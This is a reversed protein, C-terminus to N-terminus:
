VNKKSKRYSWLSILIAVLLSGMGILFTIMFGYHLYFAIGIAPAFVSRLGTLWLHVAQYDGADEDACYYASGINWLLPMTSAFVSHFLVYGMLMFYLTIGFWEVYGPFVDTLVLFGIYAFMSGFTILSFKRPDISGLLRGALPLLIIAGVNYANRYFAVSSYNLQLAEQFYIFIVSVTSMFAFGYFMFSVEFHLFPKNKWLITFMRKVSNGVSTFFRQAPEPPHPLRYPIRSFIFVSSIGLLAVFPFVYVFAYNDYDLLLGYAFTVVLMVIKNLSSSISYLRSFNKHRYSNKLFLNITPNVVPAALFYLFFILLFVYHYISNGDYAEPTRPFFILAMLPLRTLLGVTRLMKRKQVTRRLFENVFILFVFVVMSFQFLFSLQYPSGKISKIFVFENLALVGLVIGEILSYLTHLLFTIREAPTLGSFNGRAM